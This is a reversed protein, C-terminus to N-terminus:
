YCFKKMKDPDLRRAEYFDSVFAQEEDTVDTSGPFGNYFFTALPLIIVPETTAPTVSSPICFTEEFYNLINM